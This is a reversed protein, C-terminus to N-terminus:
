GFLVNFILMQMIPQVLAWTGGLLTQKYRVLIDRWTLFVILERFRLLERLDLGVLGRQPKILVTPANARPTLTKSATM